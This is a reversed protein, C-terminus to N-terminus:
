SASASAVILAPKTSGSSRAASSANASGDRMAPYSTGLQSLGPSRPASGRASEDIPETFEEVIADLALGFLTWDTGVTPGLDDRPVHPHAEGSLM